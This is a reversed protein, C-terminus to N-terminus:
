VVMGPVNVRSSVLRDYYNIFLHFSMDLKPKFQKRISLEHEPCPPQTFTLSEEWGYTFASKSRHFFLNGVCSLIFLIVRFLRTLVKKKTTQTGCSLPLKNGNYALFLLYRLLQHIWPQAILVVYLSSKPYLTIKPHVTGQSLQLCSHVLKRVMYKLDIFPDNIAVVKIGKQLCARLVLRGIRGFSHPLPPSLSILFLQKPFNTPFKRRFDFWEQSM